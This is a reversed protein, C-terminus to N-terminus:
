TQGHPTSVHAASPTACTVCAELVKEDVLQLRGDGFGVVASSGDTDLWEHAFSYKDLVWRQVVRGMRLDAINLMGSDTTFSLLSPESPLVLWFSGDGCSVRQVLATHRVYQQAGM